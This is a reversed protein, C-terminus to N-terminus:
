PVDPENPEETQITLYEALLVLDKVDVIGDGFPMPAIDYLPEDTLWYDLMMCVDVSDVLGDANFDVVPLISVQWIDFGGFGGPRNSQFYLISGNPSTVPGAEGSASNVVPGLNMPPDWPDERTPRRAVWLDGVGFGGPRPSCFFLLLGDPSIGPWNDSFSTNLTPGLNVPTGWPELTTARTSVWIDYDGYGGPRQSMFYLELGDASICADSDKSASNVTAGLNIPTSWNEDVTSRTTVWLDYYGYGGPRDSTLYLSLGDPSICDIGETDPGNVTPGLNMPEGWDDNITDRTTVWLDFGGYGGPRNSMFYLSLGDASICPALEFSGSNIIPGLNIPEGFIFDAKAIYANTLVVCALVALLLMAGTWRKRSTKKYDAIMRIRREIQSKDELIGAV